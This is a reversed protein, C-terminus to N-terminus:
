PCRERMHVSRLTHLLSRRWIKGQVAVVVIASLLFVLVTSMAASIPREIITVLFVYCTYVLM